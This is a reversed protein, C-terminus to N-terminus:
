GIKIHIDESRLKINDAIQRARDSDHHGAVVGCQSQRRFQGSANVSSSSNSRVIGAGYGPRLAVIQVNDVQGSDIVAVVVETSGSGHKWAGLADIDVGDKGGPHGNVPQGTNRLGWQERFRADNPQPGAQDVHWTADLEAYAVSKDRRYTVLARQASAMDGFGLVALGPMSAFRELGVGEGPREAQSITAGSIIERVIREPLSETRYKVIMRVPGDASGSLKWTPAVPASSPYLVCPEHDKKAHRSITFHAIQGAVGALLIVLAGVVIHPLPNRTM